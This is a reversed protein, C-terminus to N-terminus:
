IDQTPSNQGAPKLRKNQTPNLSVDRIVMSGEMQASFVVGSSGMSPKSQARKDEETPAYYPRKNRPQTVDDQAQESGPWPVLYSNIRWLGFKPKLLDLGEFRDKNEPNHVIEELRSREQCGIVEHGILGCFICARTLKEYSCHVKIERLTPHDLRVSDLFPKELLMQVKIKVFSRGGVFSSIPLSLSTGLPKALLQLGEEKLSNIPLNFFQVWMGISDIHTAKLDSQSKVLASAIMDGRYTWPGRRHVKNMDELNCFKLLFCNKTVPRFVTEPDVAWVKSMMQNFQGDLVTRDTVVKLM